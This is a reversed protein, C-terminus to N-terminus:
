IGKDNQSHKTYQVPSASNDEGVYDSLMYTKNNIIGYLTHHVLKHKDDTECQNWIVAKFSVDDGKRISDLFTVVHSKPVTNWVWCHFMVRTISFLHKERHYNAIRLETPCEIFVRETKDSYKIRTNVCLRMITGEKESQIVLFSSLGKDKKAKLFDINEVKM